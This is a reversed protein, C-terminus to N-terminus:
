CTHEPCLTNDGAHPQFLDLYTAMFAHDFTLQVASSATQPDLHSLAGMYFPPPNGDPCIISQWYHANCHLLDYMDQWDWLLQAKLTILPSPPLPFIIHQQEELLSNIRAM